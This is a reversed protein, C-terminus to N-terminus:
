SRGRAEQVLDVMRHRVEDAEEIPPEFAVRVRELGDATQVELDFGLRDIGVMKAADVDELGALGVAYDVLADAHDDNMHEIIGVASDALLDPEAQQFADADFWSMRGFGGIYRVKEVRLRWFAFDGFDVYNQASPHVELYRERWQGPEEMHEITGILTARQLALPRPGATPDTVCLSARPDEKFNKTHAALDSLLLLPDGDPGVALEVVSGYPHGSRHDLTSLVGEEAHELLTRTSVAHTPRPADSSRSDAPADHDTM